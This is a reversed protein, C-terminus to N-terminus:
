LEAGTPHRDSNNELLLQEAVVVEASKKLVAFGGRGTETAIATVEYQDTVDIPTLEDNAVAMVKFRDGTDDDLDYITVHLSIM